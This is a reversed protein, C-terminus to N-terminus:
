TVSKAQLFLLTQTLSNFNIKWKYVHGLIEYLNNLLDISKYLLFFKM